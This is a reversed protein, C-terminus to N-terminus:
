SLKREVISIRVLGVLNTRHPQTRHSRSSNVQGSDMNWQDRGELAVTTNCDTCEFLKRVLDEGLTRDSENRQPSCRFGCCEGLLLSHGNQIDTRIHATRSARRQDDARATVVRRATRLREPPQSPPRLDRRGQHRNGGERPRRFGTHHRMERMQLRRAWHRQDDIVHRVSSRAIQVAASHLLHTSQGPTTPTFYAAPPISAAATSSKASRGPSKATSAPSSRNRAGRRAKPAAPPM